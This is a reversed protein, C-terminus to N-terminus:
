DDEEVTILKFLLPQMPLPLLFQIIKIMIHIKFFCPYTQFFYNTPLRILYTEVIGDYLLFLFLIVNRSTINRKAVKANM